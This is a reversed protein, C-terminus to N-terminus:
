AKKRRLLALGTLSLGMLAATTGGDPVAFHNDNLILQDQKQNPAAGGLNLVAVNFITNNKKAGGALDGIGAGPTGFATFAAQLFANATIQAATLTIEDELFWFAEQLKAASAARSTGNAYTYGSLTGKAFSNYLFATGVSILDTTPLPGAGDPDVGGAVGGYISGLSISASYTGGITISENYEICFTEFGVQSNFGPNMRTGNATGLTTGNVITYGLALSPALLAEGSADAARVNFEGGGGSRYDSDATITIQAAFASSGFAGALALASFAKFLTKKM